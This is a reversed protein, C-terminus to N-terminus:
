SVLRNEGLNDLLAQFFIERWTESTEKRIEDM